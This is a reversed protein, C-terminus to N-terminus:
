QRRVRKQVPELVSQEKETVAFEANLTMASGRKGFRAKHGCLLMAVILDGNSLYQDQLREVRHKLGYSGWCYKSKKEFDRSIRTYASQIRELDFIDRDEKLQTYTRYTTSRFGEFQAQLADSKSSEAHGANGNRTLVVGKKECVPLLIDYIVGEAEERDMEDFGDIKDFRVTAGKQYSMTGDLM